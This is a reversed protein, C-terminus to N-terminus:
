GGPATRRSTTSSPRRHLRRAVPTSMSVAVPVMEVRAPRTSAAPTARVNKEPRDPENAGDWSAGRSSPGGPWSRPSGTRRWPRRRWVEPGVVAEAVLTLALLLFGAAFWWHVFEAKPVLTAVTM